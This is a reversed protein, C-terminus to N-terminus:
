LCVIMKFSWGSLNRKYFLDEDDLDLQNSDTLPVGNLAIKEGARSKIDDYLQWSQVHEWNLGLYMSDSIRYGIGLGGEISKNFALEKQGSSFDLININSILCLRQATERLIQNTRRKGKLAKSKNGSRPVNRKQLVAIPTESQLNRRTNLNFIVTTSFLYTSNERMTIRLTSDIPSISATTYADSSNPTLWRYGLSLGVRIKKTKEPTNELSYKELDSTLKVLSTEMMEIKRHLLSDTPPISDGFYDGGMSEAFLDTSFVLIMVQLFCLKILASNCNSYPYLNM